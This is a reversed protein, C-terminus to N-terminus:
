FRVSRIHQPISAVCKRICLSHKYNRLIIHKKTTYIHPKIINKQPKHPKCYEGHHITQIYLWLVSIMMYLFMSTNTMIWKLPPRLLTFMDLHTSWWASAIIVTPLVLDALFLLSKSLIRQPSFPNILATLSHQQFM